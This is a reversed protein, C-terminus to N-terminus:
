RKLKDDDEKPWRPSGNPYRRRGRRKTGSPSASRSRDISSRGGDQASQGGTRQDPKRPLPKEKVVGTPQNDDEGDEDHDSSDPEANDVLDRATDRSTMFKQGALRRQVRV